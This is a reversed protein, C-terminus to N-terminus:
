WQGELSKLKESYEIILAELDSNHWKKTTRYQRHLDDYVEQGYKKVFWNQYPYFDFEHRYNCGWCSGHCNLELWRTSYAARSFLHGNTLQEVAGCIVCAGDRKRIYLSVVTDLKKVLSKRSPKKKKTVKKTTKM